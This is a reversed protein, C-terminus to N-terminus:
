GTTCILTAFQPSRLLLAHTRTTTGLAPQALSPRLLDPIQAEVEQRKPPWDAVSWFQLETCMGANHITVMLESKGNGLFYVDVVTPITVPCWEKIEDLGNGTTEYCM